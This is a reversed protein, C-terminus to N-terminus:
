YLCIGWEILSASRKVTTLKISSTPNLGKRSLEYVLQYEDNIPVFSLFNPVEGGRCAGVPLGTGGMLNPEALQDWAFRFATPEKVSDSQLVVWDGEIQAVAPQFGKSGPGVLEFNSAIPKGDRTKLGGGTNKFKIKLTGGVIEHSEYEPSNAM